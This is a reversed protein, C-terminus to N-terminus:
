TAAVGSACRAVARLSFTAEPSGVRRFLEERVAAQSQQSLSTCYAGAPGIGALFGNWLEDYDTYTTSVALTTETVNEFGAGDLLDAIEGPRGFRLTRAEDPANPDVTLAADWFHRLMQMGESFDWVCAAAKGGPRLVRRLEGAARAPDSVFHLVLQALAVDFADDGFPIEEARGARVDAGPCRAACESVFPTSPDCAAVAGAGLRDTLVSTLAGPGCGVDLVSLGTTLQLTDAFVVALPKSYRGMFADYAQGSTQFTDGGHVQDTM